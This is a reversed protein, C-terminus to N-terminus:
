NLPEGAQKQKLEEKREKVLREFTSRKLRVQIIAEEASIVGARWQDYTEDFNEPKPIRPRGLHKGQSKAYAIGEAQKQKIRDREHQAAFSIIQLFLDSIFTGDVHKKKVSTDLLEIDLVQIYVGQTGTINVWEDLIEKYSYGLQSLSKVVLIDGPKACDRLQNLKEKEAPQDVFINEPLIGAEHLASLQAEAKRDRSTRRAYGYRILQKM